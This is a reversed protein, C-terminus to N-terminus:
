PSIKSKGSEEAREVKEINKELIYGFRRIDPCYVYVVTPAMYDLERLGFGRGKILTTGRKLRTAQDNQPCTMLVDIFVNEDGDSNRMQDVAELLCMPSVFVTDEKVVYHDEGYSLLPILLLFALIIVINKVLNEKEIWLM